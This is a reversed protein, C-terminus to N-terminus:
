PQSKIITTMEAMVEESTAAPLEQIADTTAKQAKVETYSELCARQGAISINYVIEPHSEAWKLQEYLTSVTCPIYHVYPQLTPEHWWDYSFTQVRFVVGGSSCM